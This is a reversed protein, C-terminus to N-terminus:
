QAEKKGQKLKEVRHRIESQTDNVFTIFIRFSEDASLKENILQRFAQERLKRLYDLAQECSAISRYNEITKQISMIKQYYEDIRNKKRQRNWRAVTTIAGIFALIISFIFGMLEAYRELFSPRNRDLYHKAGPHLPFRLRLPDFKETLGSLMKNDYDIALLQKNELITKIVNYVVQNEVDVRTLLVADIAITLVPDTPYDYFINKPIIYPKALPYKLCFGEAVSGRGANRIDGLSFIRGGQQLSRKVRVNNFGTVLCCVDVSDSLMIEDFDLYKPQYMTTDIGFEGFLTQALLTTGSDRPGMAVERGRILDQLSEPKLQKKYLLFFIESYLPLVSRIASYNFNHNENILKTLLIDNQSIAFDAKKEILLNCNNISGLVLTDKKLVVPQSLIKMEMKNQWSIIDAINSAVKYYSTAPSGAAFYFTSINKHHCVFLWSVILLTLVIAGIFIKKKIM